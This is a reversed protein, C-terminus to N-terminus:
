TPGKSQFYLLLRTLSHATYDKDDWYGTRWSPFFSFFVRSARVGRSSLEGNLQDRVVKTGKRRKEKQRSNKSERLPSLGTM